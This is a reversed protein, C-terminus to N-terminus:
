VDHFVINLHAVNRSISRGDDPREFHQGSLCVQENRSLSIKNHISFLSAFINKRVCYKLQTIKLPIQEQLASKNSLYYSINIYSSILM